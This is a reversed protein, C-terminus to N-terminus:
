HAFDIVMNRYGDMSGVQGAQLVITTIPTHIVAPGVVVNGPALNWSGAELTLRDVATDSRPRGVLALGEVGIGGDPFAHSYMTVAEPWPGASATVGRATATHRLTALPAGATNYVITLHAGNAAAFAHDYPADTEVVLSLALTAAGSTLLIVLGIIFTQLRRRRIEAATAALIANM